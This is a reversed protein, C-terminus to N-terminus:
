QQIEIIISQQYTNSIQPELMTHHLWHQSNAFDDCRDDHKKGVIFYWLGRSDRQGNRCKRYTTNGIQDM